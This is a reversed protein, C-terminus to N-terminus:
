KLCIDGHAGTRPAHVEESAKMEEM